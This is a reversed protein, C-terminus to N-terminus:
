MALCPPRHQQREHSRCFFFVSFSVANLPNSEIRNPPDRRRGQQGQSQRICCLVEETGGNGSGCDDVVRWCCCRWHSTDRMTLSAMGERMCGSHQTMKYSSGRVRVCCCVNEINYLLVQLIINNHHDDISWGCSYRIFWDILVFADVFSMMINQIHRADTTLNWEKHANYERLGDLLSCLLVSRM